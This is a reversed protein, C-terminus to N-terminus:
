RGGSDVERVLTEFAQALCVEDARPCAREPHRQLDDVRRSLREWVHRGNPQALLRNAARNIAFDLAEYLDQLRESDCVRQRATQLDTLGCFFLRGTAQTERSASGTNFPPQGGGLTHTPRPVAKVPDPAVAIHAPLAVSVTNAQAPGRAQLHGGLALSAALTAMGVVASRGRGVPGIRFLAAAAWAIFAGAALTVGTIVVQGWVFASGVLDVLPLNELANGSQRLSNLTLWWSCAIWALLLWRGAFNSTQCVKPRTTNPDGQTWRYPQETTQDSHYGQKPGSSRPPDTTDARAAHTDAGPSRSIVARAAVVEAMAEPCGLGILAKAIGSEPFGRAALEHALDLMQEYFMREAEAASPGSSHRAERREARSEPEARNSQTADQQAQHLQDARERDYQERAEPDRLTRYAQALEKFRIHAEAKARPGAHRDPHWKMAERRYGEKIQQQTADDAVGLIKYYTMHQM